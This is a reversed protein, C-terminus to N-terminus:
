GTPLANPSGLVPTRDRCNRGSRCRRSCLRSSRWLRAEAGAFARRRYSAEAELAGGGEVAVERDETKARVAAVSEGDQPSRIASSHKWVSTNETIYYNGFPPGKFWRHRAEMLAAATKFAITNNVGAGMAPWAKDSALADAAAFVQFGARVGSPWGSKCPNQVLLV